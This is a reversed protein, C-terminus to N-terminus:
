WSTQRSQQETGLTIKVNNKLNWQKTRSPVNSRVVGDIINTHTNINIINIRLPTRLLIGFGLTFSLAFRGRELFLTRLVIRLDQKLIALRCRTLLILGFSHSPLMSLRITNRISFLCFLFHPSPLTWSRTLFSPRFIHHLPYHVSPPHIYSTLNQHTTQLNHHLASTFSTSLIVTSRQADGSWPKNAFLLYYVEEKEAEPQQYHHHPHHHRYRHPSEVSLSTGSKTRRSLVPLAKPSLTAVWFTSVDSVKGANLRTAGLAGSSRSAFKLRGLSAWPTTSTLRSKRASITTCAFLFTRFPSWAGLRSSPTRGFPATGPSALLAFQFPGCLHAPRPSWSLPQPCSSTPTTPTTVCTTNCVQRPWCPTSTYVPPLLRPPSIHSLMPKPFRHHRTFAPILHRRSHHYRPTLPNCQRRSRWTLFHHRRRRARHHFRPPLRPHPHPHSPACLPSPTTTSTRAVSM